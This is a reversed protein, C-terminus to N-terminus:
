RLGDIDYKSVSEWIELSSNIDKNGFSGPWDHGGGIVEYHEVSVGGDGNNWSYLEVTSGDTTNLDPLQVVTPTTDTHNHNVWYRIIDNLSPFYTVGQYILGDNTIIRFGDEGVSRTAYVSDTQAVKSM